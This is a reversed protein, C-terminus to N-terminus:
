FIWDQFPFFAERLSAVGVLFDLTAFSGAPLSSEGRGLGHSVKSDPTNRSRSRGKDSYAAGVLAVYLLKSFLSVSFSSCQVLAVEADIKIDVTEPNITEVM